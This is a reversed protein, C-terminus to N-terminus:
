PFSIRYSHNPGLGFRSSWSLTVADNVTFTHGDAPSTIRVPCPNLIPTPSVTVIPLNALGEDSVEINEIAVWGTQVDTSAMELWTEDVLKGSLTIVEDVTLTSIRAYAISPGPRVNVRDNNSQGLIPTPTPTYTSTPTPTITPTDTPTPTFTNTPTPPIPTFTNTPTPIPTFTETPVPTPTETPLPTETPTSTPTETPIPTDTPIPTSTETPTLTPTHTPTETPLPTETPTPTPDFIGSMSGSIAGLGIVIVVAFVGFIILNTKNNAM